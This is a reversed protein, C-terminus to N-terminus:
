ILPHMFLVGFPRHGLLLLSSFLGIIGVVVRLSGRVPIPLLPTILILLQIVRADPERAGEILGLAILTASMTALSPQVPARSRREGGVAAHDEHTLLLKLIASPLTCPIIILLLIGVREPVFNTFYEREAANFSTM